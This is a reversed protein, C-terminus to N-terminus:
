QAAPFPAARHRSPFTTALIEGVSRGRPTAQGNRRFASDGFSPLPIPYWNVQKDSGRNGPATIKLACLM